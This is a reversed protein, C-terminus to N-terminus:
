DVKAEKLQSKKKKTKKMKLPWNSTPTNEYYGYGYKGRAIKTGNLVVGINTLKKTENLDKILGLSERKTKKYHVVFLTSTVYKNILLADTVLGVPPTDIIIYDFRKKLEELLADMKENLILESPNPPIPGCAILALNRHGKGYQIINDLSEKGVLYNTIGKISSEGTLYDGLKPRRLDLELMVTKKGSLALSLGLNLSIFSKGEGPGSSTVMVVPKKVNANTFELNTRLLRFMEAVASRSNHSIVMQSSKGSKCLSGLFVANTLEKIEKESQVKDNFQDKLYVIGFPIGMGFLFALAYFRQAASPLQAVTDPKDIIRANGIQAAISIATEERKQLLYLFLTEKIQQQRMIQLIERENKPIEAMRRNLPVLETELQRERNSVDRKAFNLQKVLNGRISILENDLRQLGPHLETTAAALQKYEVITTNYKEILALLSPSGADAGLTLLEHSNEPDQVFELADQLSNKLIGLNLLSEDATTIKTMFQEASTGLDTALGKKTKYEEVQREVKYLEKSIYNLRDEIFMLTNSARKKKEELGNRFFVEVLKNIIDIAKDPVEHIMSLQLLNSEELRQLDLGASFNRAMYAPPLIVIEYTSFEPDIPAGTYDLVVGNGEFSFPVGFRLQTTDKDFGILNFYTTDVIQIHLRQWYLNWLSDVSSLRVPSYHYLESKKHKGVGFYSVELGLERVVEEMLNRSRFIQMENELTAGVKLTIGQISKGEVAQPDDDEEIMVSGSIRYMPNEKLLQYYAMSFALALFIVFLYWHKLLKPAFSKFDFSSNNPNSM